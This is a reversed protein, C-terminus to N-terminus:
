RKPGVLGREFATRTSGKEVEAKLTRYWSPITKLIPVPAGFSDKDLWPRNAVFRIKNNM